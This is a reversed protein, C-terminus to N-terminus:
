RGLRAAAAVDRPVGAAGPETGQALAAVGRGFCDLALAWDDDILALMGRCQGWAFAEVFRDGPDRAAAMALGREMGAADRRQVRTEALGCLAKTAVADLGLREGVELAQEAHREAAGTRM